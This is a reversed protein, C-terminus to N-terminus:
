SNQAKKLMIQSLKLWEFTTCIIQINPDSNNLYEIRDIGGKSYYEPIQNSGTKTNTWVSNQLMKPAIKPMLPHAFFVKEVQLLVM